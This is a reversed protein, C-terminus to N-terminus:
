FPTKLAESNAKRTAKSIASDNKFVNNIKKYRKIKKLERKIYPKVTM